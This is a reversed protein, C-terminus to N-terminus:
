AEVAALLFRMCTSFDQPHAIYQLLADHSNVCREIGSQKEAGHKKVLTFLTFKTTALTLTSGALFRPKTQNVCQNVAPFFELRHNTRCSKVSCANGTRVWRIFTQSLETFFCPSCRLFCQHNNYVEYQLEVPIRAFFTKAKEPLAMKINDNDHYIM